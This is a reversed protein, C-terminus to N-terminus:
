RFMKPHTDVQHWRIMPGGKPTKNAAIHFRILPRSPGTEERNAHGDDKSGAALQSVSHRDVSEAVCETYGYPGYGPQTPSNDSHFRREGRSSAWYEPGRQGNDNRHPNNFSGQTLYAQEQQKRTQRAMWAAKKEKRHVKQKWPPLGRPVKYTKAFEKALESETKILGLNSTMSPGGGMPPRDTPAGQSQKTAVSGADRPQFSALPTYVLHRPPTTISAPSHAPLGTPPTASPAIQTPAGPFPTPELGKEERGEVQSPPRGSPGFRNIDPDRSPLYTRHVSIRGPQRDDSKSIAAEKSAALDVMEPQKQHLEEERIDFAVPPPLKFTICYLNDESGKKVFHAQQVCGRRLDHGIRKGIKKLLDNVADAKKEAPAKHYAYVHVFPFDLKWFSGGRNAFLRERKTYIGRLCELHTLSQDPDSFVIHSVCAPLNKDGKKLPNKILKGLKSIKQPKYDVTKEFLKRVLQQVFRAPAQSKLYLNKKVKNNRRNEVLLQYVKDRRENAFVIAGRKAAAVSLAGVGSYVDAVCEGLGFTDVLRQRETALKTDFYVDRFGAQDLHFTFSSGQHSLEVRYNEPGALVENALGLELAGGVKEPEGFVTQVEREKDCIVEAILNRYERLPEPVDLHLLPGIRPFDDISPPNVDEPLVAKMIEEYGWDGYELKLDYPVLELIKSKVYEQTPGSATSLDGYKVQPQLILLPTEVNLKSNFDYRQNFREFPILDKLIKEKITHVLASDLVRAATVPVVKRFFARDLTRMARDVPPLFRSMFM